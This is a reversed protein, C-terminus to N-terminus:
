VTVSVGAETAHVAGRSTMKWSFASHLHRHLYIEILLAVLAKAAATITLPSHLTLAQGVRRRGGALSFWVALSPAGIRM